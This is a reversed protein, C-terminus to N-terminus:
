AHPQPPAGRSIGMCKGQYGVISELFNWTIQSQLFHLIITEGVRSQSLALDGLQSSAISPPSGRPMNYSGDINLLNPVITFWVHGVWSVWTWNWLYEGGCWHAKVTVLSLLNHIEYKSIQLRAHAVELILDNFRSYDHLSQMWQLKEFETSFMIGKEREGLSEWSGLFYM